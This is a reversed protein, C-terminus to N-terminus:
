WLVFKVNTFRKHHWYLQKYKLMIYDLTLNETTYEKKHLVNDMSKINLDYTVKCYMVDVIDCKKNLAKIISSFENITIYKGDRTIEVDIWINDSASGVNLKYSM